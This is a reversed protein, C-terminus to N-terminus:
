NQKHYGTYIVPFVVNEYGLKSEAVVVTEMQFTIHAPACHIEKFFNTKMHLSKDNTFREAQLHIVDEYLHFM